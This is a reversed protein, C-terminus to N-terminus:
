LRLRGLALRPPGTLSGSVTVAVRVSGAGLARCPTSGPTSSSDARTRSSAWRCAVRCSVKRAPDHLGDLFTEHRTAHLHALERVLASEDLVGPDVGHRASPAPDTRTATVTDPDSM